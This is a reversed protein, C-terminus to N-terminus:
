ALDPELIQSNLNHAEDSLNSVTIRVCDAPTVSDVEITLHQRSITKDAVVFQGDVVTLKSCARYFYRMGESHTRGFLFKKGPRLWLKKGSHTLLRSRARMHFSQTGKLADGENELIWM